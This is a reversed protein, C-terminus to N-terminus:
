AFCLDLSLLRPSQLENVQQLVSFTRIVTVEMARISKSRAFGQVMPSPRLIVTEASKRCRLLTITILGNEIDDTEDRMCVLRIVLRIM